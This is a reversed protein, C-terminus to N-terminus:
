YEQIHNKDYLYENSAVRHNDSDIDKKEYFKVGSWEGYTCVEAVENNILQNLLLIPIVGIIKHGHYLFIRDNQKAFRLNNNM